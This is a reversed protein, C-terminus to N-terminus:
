KGLNWTLRILNLVLFRARRSKIKKARKNPRATLSWSWNDLALFQQFRILVPNSQHIPNTHAVNCPGCIPYKARKGFKFYICVCIIISKIILAQVLSLQKKTTDQKAISLMNWSIRIFTSTGIQMQVKTQCTMNVGAWAQAYNLGIQVQRARWISGEESRPM